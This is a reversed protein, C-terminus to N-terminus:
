AGLPVDSSVIVLADETPALPADQGPGGPMQKLLVAQAALALKSDDGFYAAPSPSALGHAQHTTQTLVDAAQPNVLSDPM